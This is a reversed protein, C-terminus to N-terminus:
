GAALLLAMSTAVASMLTGVGLLALVIVLMREKGYMDGLRGVIPTAVTASLLYSTLVWSV